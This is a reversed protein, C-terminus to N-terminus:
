LSEADSHRVSHAISTRRTGRAHQRNRNRIATVVLLLLVGCPGAVLLFRFRQEIPNSIRIPRSTDPVVFATLGPEVATESAGEAVWRHDRPKNLVVFEGRRVSQGSLLYEGAGTRRYALPRVSTRPMDYISEGKYNSVAFVHFPKWSTVQFVYLKPTKMALRIGPEQLLVNVVHTVNRGVWGKLGRLYGQNVDIHVVIFRINLLQLALKAKSGGSLVRLVLPLTYPRAPDGLLISKGTLFKLPEVGEYGSEGGDWSLESLGGPGAPVPLVEFDGEQKNLWDGVRYYEDPITIRKSAIVGSRDFASGTWLPAALLGVIAVILTWGIGQALWQRKHGQVRLTRSTIVHIGLALLPGYAFAAYEGFRPYLSRYAAGYPIHLLLWSKLAGFPPKPGTMFLVSIVAVSGYLGFHGSGRHRNARSHDSSKNPRFVGKIADFRPTPSFPALGHRRGLIGWVGVVIVLPVLISVSRWLWSHYFSAWPYYPSNQYGDSLGWWGSLRIADWFRVSNLELLNHLDGSSVGRTVELASYSITPVIWYLNLTVWAACMTVLGGLARRREASARVEVWAIGGLLLFDSVVIPTTIYAPSHMLTWVVAALLARAISPRRLVWLWCLAAAPLLSYHFILTWLSVWIMTLSFINFVYFLAGGLMATTSLWPLTRRILYYMSTGAAVLLGGLVLRELLAFNYPVGLKGWLWVAAGIPVIFPLKRADPPGIGISTVQFYQSIAEPNLPAVTDVSWVLSKGRYWTFLSVVAPVLFVLLPILDSRKRVFDTLQKVLRVTPPTRVVANLAAQRKNEYAM